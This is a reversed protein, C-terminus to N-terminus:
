PYCLPRDFLYKRGALPEFIKNEHDVFLPVKYHFFAPIKLDQYSKKIIRQHNPELKEFPIANFHNGPHNIKGKWFVQWSGCDTPKWLTENCFFTNIKTNFIFLYPYCVMLKSTKSMVFRSSKKNKVLETLVELADHSIELEEKIFFKLEIQHIDNRLDFYGGLPGIQLLSKMKTTKQAFYDTIEAFTSGLKAYNSEMSKGFVEELYPFLKTRMRARLFKLDQNTPDEFFHVKKKKLFRYIEKKSVRLLPRWLNIEGFTSEMQLGRMGSIGSGEAVRKFVTEAQDGRHHALLVAQFTFQRHLKTFFSLRIQRAHNELDSTSKPIDSHLHFPLKLHSAVLNLTEAEQTSEKRWNHNVHAIHLDFDLNKRCELLLHLLAMSDAGGSLGLLLKSKKGVRLALFQKILQIRM